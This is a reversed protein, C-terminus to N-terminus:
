KKTDDKLLEKLGPKVIFGSTDKVIETELLIERLIKMVDKHSIGLDHLVKKVKKLLEIFRKKVDEPRHEDVEFYDEDLHMQALLSKIINRSFDENMPKKQLHKHVIEIYNM